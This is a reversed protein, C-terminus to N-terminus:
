FDDPFELVQDRPRRPAPPEDPDVLDASGGPAQPRAPHKLPKAATRQVLTSPSRLTAPTTQTRSVEAALAESGEATAAPERPVAGATPRAPAPPLAVPTSASTSASASASTAAPTVPSPVVVVESGIPRVGAGARAPAGGAQSAVPRLAPVVRGARATAGSDGAFTERTPAAPRKERPPEVPRKRSSGLLAVLSESQGAGVDTERVRAAEHVDDAATRRADAATRRTAPDTSRGSGDTHRASAAANRAAAEEARAVEDMRVVDRRESPLSRVPEVRQELPAVKFRKAWPEWVLEARHRWTKSRTAAAYCYLDLVGDDLKGVPLRVAVEVEGMAPVLVVTEAIGFRGGAGTRCAAELLQVPYRGLNSVSMTLTGAGVRGTRSEPFLEGQTILIEPPRVALPRRSRSRASAGLLLLVLAALLLWLGFPWEVPELLPVGEAEAFWVRVADVTADLMEAMRRLATEM